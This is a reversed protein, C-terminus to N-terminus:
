GAVAAAEGGTERGGEGGDAAAEHVERERVLLAALVAGSFALIASVLFITNLGDVFAVSSAQSVQDTLGSPAASAAAAVNGTSVVDVLGPSASGLAATLSSTVESEMIAGLAAVGIAVGLIRFTSNLGSAMGSQRIPAAGLAAAAVSPNVLGVGLGILIGGALITTWESGVEVGRMLLLGVGALVMGGAILVRPPVREALRATAAGAVFAAVTLPLLRVGTEFADYALLNQLFFVLYTLLAFASVATFLIALSAGSTAPNRFLRLDLLPREVRSEIAIFAALLVASGAFMGVILASGWGEDNGRFLTIVLLAMSSSLTLLGGLDVRGGAQPDRSEPVGRAVLAATVLGIPVNVLFIWEWNLGDVLAGGIMPGLALAAATTSGWVALAVSRDRGSYAAAILALSTALMAAGGIGQLGRFLNLSLPDWSIACLLSALSFIALGGTFVLRRGFRDGLSGSILMTAALTLAYADIVWRLDDFSAALERQIDPLAVNVVTVDLLLMFAAISVAILTNWKGVM